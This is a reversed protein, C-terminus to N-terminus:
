LKIVDHKHSFTNPVQSHDTSKSEVGVIRTQIKSAVLKRHQVIFLHFYNFLHLPPGNKVKSQSCTSQHYFIPFRGRYRATYNWCNSRHQMSPILQDLQFQQVQDLLQAVAPWWGVMHGCLRSRIRTLGAVFGGKVDIDRSAGSVGRTAPEIGSAPM